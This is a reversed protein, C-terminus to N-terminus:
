RYIAIIDNKSEYIVPEMFTDEGYIDKVYVYYHTFEYDAFTIPIQRVDTIERWIDGVVILDGKQLEQPNVTLPETKNFAKAIMRHITEMNFDNTKM